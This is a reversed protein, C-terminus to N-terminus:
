HKTFKKCKKLNQEVRGSSEACWEGEICFVLKKGPKRFKKLAIITTVFTTVKGM